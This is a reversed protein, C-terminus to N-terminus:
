KNLIEKLDFHCRSLHKKIQELYVDPYKLYLSVHDADEFVFTELPLHPYKERRYKIYNDEINKYLILKDKKTYLVLTPICNEDNRFSRLAKRFYANRNFTVDIWFVFSSIFSAIGRVFPNKITSELIGDTASWTFKFGHPLGPSSDLIYGKINSKLLSTYKNNLTNDKDNM